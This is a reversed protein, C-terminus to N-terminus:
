VNADPRVRAFAFPATFPSRAVGIVRGLRCSGRASRRVGGLRGLIMKSIYKAGSVPWDEAAAKTPFAEEIWNM